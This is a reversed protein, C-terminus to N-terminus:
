MAQKRYADIIAQGDAGARTLWEGSLRDGIQRLGAKLDETPPVV